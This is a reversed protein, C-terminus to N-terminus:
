LAGTGSLVVCVTQILIVVDSWLSWNLVYWEDLRVRQDYGTENRGSIQWLGTLGPRVRLYLAAVSGYYQELEQIIVPRPGVLSMQGRVVNWLQPLEDLSTQRLWRGIPTIRPDDKLKFSQLFEEHLEPNSIEWASLRSEADTVMTRFKLCPFLIGDKGVRRHSYTIPGADELKIAAAIVLFLPSLIVLLSASAIIDFLRKLVRALGGQASRCPVLVDHGFFCNPNVSRPPLPHLVSMVAVSIGSGQLTHILRSTEAPEIARPAIIAECCGAAALIGVIRDLHDTLSIRSVGPLANDALEQGIGPVVWRIEFGLALSRKLIAYLDAPAPEGGIIATPIKWMNGVSLMARACQRASPIGVILFIWCSLSQLGALQQPPPAIAFEAVGAITLMTTTGKVGDWFFRRTRYDGLVGRFIVFGAALLWFSDAHLILPHLDGTRTIAVAQFGRNQGFLWHAAGLALIDAAILGLACALQQFRPYGAGAPHHSEQAPWISASIKAHSNM